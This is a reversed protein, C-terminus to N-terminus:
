KINVYSLCVQLLHDYDGSQAEKMFENIIEPPVKGRRLARSVKGLILFANSDCDTLKVKIKPYRTSRM